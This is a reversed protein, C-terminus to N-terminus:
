PHNHCLYELYSYENVNFEITKRQAAYKKICKYSYKFNGERFESILKTVQFVM